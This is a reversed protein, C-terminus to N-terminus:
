RCIDGLATGRTPWASIYRGQHDQKMALHAETRVAPIRRRLRAGRSPRVCSAPEWCSHKDLRVERRRSSKPRSSCCGSCCPCAPARCRRGHAPAGRTDPVAEGGEM